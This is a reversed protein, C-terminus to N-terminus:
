PRACTALRSLLAMLSAREAPLLPALLEEELALAAPVVEAYLREGEGSLALARTRRDAASARVLLGRAVLASVARSVQMKDMATRRVLDAQTAAGEAVVALVRWEPIRLGFRTRYAAAIRESVANSAVSLRYPLFRDLIM